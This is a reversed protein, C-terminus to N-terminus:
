VDAVEKYNAWCQTCRALLDELATEADVPNVVLTLGTVDIPTVHIFGSPWGRRRCEEVIQDHREVIKSPDVLGDTLYRGLRIGARLSGVLMHLEKHEGLLHNKCMIRPDVM